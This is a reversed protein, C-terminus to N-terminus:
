EPNFTIKLYVIQLVFKWEEYTKISCECLKMCNEEFPILKKAEKLNIIEKM